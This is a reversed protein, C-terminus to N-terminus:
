NLKVRIESRSNKLLIQTCDFFSILALHTLFIKSTHNIRGNLYPIKEVWYRIMM